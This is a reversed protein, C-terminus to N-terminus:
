WLRDFRVRDVGMLMVWWVVVGALTTLAGKLLADALLGTRNGRGARIWCVFWVVVALVPGLATLALGGRVTYPYTAEGVVSVSSPVELFMWAAAAVAVLWVALYVLFPWWPVGPRGPEWEVPQAPEAPAAPEQGSLAAVAVAPEAAQEPPASQQAESAQAPQPEALEPEAPEALEPEAPAAEGSTSPAPIAETTPGPASDESEIAEDQSEPAVPEAGSSPEDPAIPEKDQAELESM